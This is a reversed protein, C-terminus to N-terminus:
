QDSEQNYYYTGVTKEIQFFGDRLHAEKAFAEVEWPQARYAPGSNIPKVWDGDEWCYCWVKDKYAMKLRGTAFQQAHVMEHAFTTLTWTWPMDRQLTIIFNTPLSDAAETLSNTPSCVGRTGSEVLKKRASMKLTIDLVKPNPIRLTRAFYSVAQKLREDRWRTDKAGRQEVRFLM